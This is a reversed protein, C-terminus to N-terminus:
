RIMEREDFKGEEITKKSDSTRNMSEEIMGRNRKLRLILMIIISLLDPLDSKCNMVKIDDDTHVRSVTSSTLGNEM